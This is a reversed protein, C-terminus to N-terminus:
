LWTNTSRASPVTSRLRISSPTTCPAVTSAREPTAAPSRTTTLPAPKRFSPSRTLTTAVPPHVEDGPRDAVGDRDDDHEDAQGNRAQQRERIEANLVPRGVLARGDDDSSGEGAAGGRLNHDHAVSL